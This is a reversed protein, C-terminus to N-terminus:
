FFPIATCLTQDVYLKLLTWQRYWALTNKEPAWNKCVKNKNRETASACIMNGHTHTHTHTHTHNFVNEEM